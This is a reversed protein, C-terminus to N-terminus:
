KLIKLTIPQFTDDEEDTVYASLADDYQLQLVFARDGLVVRHKMDYDFPNYIVVDREEIKNIRATVYVRCTFPNVELKIKTMTNNTKNIKLETLLTDVQEKASPEPELIRVFIRNLADNISRFPDYIVGDPCSDRIKGWYHSGEETRSFTFARGIFAGFSPFEYSLYEDVDMDINRKFKEKIENTELMELYDFGRKM